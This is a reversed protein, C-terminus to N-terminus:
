LDTYPNFPEGYAEVSLEEHIERGEETLVYDVKGGGLMFYDIYEVTEDFEVGAQEILWNYAFHGTYEDIIYSGRYDSNIYDKLDFVTEVENEPLTPDFKQNTYTVKM